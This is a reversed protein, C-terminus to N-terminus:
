SNAVEVSGSATEYSHPSATASEWDLLELVGTESGGFFWIVSHSGSNALGNAVYNSDQLKEIGFRSHTHSSESASDM